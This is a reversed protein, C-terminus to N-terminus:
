KVQPESTKEPKPEKVGSKIKASEIAHRLVPRWQECRKRDEEEPPLKSAEKAYSAVILEVREVARETVFTTTIGVNRRALGEESVTAIMVVEAARGGCVEIQKASIVRTGFGEYSGPDALGALLKNTENDTWDKDLVKISVGLSEDGVGAGSVVRTVYSEGSAVEVADWSAPVPLDVSVWRSVTEKRGSWVTVIDAGIEAEPNGALAEHFALLVASMRRLESPKDFDRWAEVLSKGNEKLSKRVAPEQKSFDMVRAVSEVDVGISRMHEQLADFGPKLHKERRERAENVAVELQNDVETAVGLWHNIALWYGFSRSFEKADIRQKWPQLHLDREANSTRTPISARPTQEPQAVVSGACAASVILWTRVCLIM